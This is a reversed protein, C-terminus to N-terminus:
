PLFEDLMPATGVVGRQDQYQTIIDKGSQIIILSNSAWALLAIGPNSKAGILTNWKETETDFEFIDSM